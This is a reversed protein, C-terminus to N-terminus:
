GAVFVDSGRQPESAPSRGGGTQGLGGLSIDAHEAAFDPGAQM